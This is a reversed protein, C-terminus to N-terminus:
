EPRCRACGRGAACHGDPYSRRRSGGGFLDAQHNGGVVLPNEAEPVLARAAHANGDPLEGQVGGSRAYIRGVRKWHRQVHARVVLIQQGIREVDPIALPPQAAGLVVIEELGEDAGDQVDARAGHQLPLVELLVVGDLDEIAIAVADRAEVVVDLAGAGDHQRPDQGGYPREAPRQALVPEDEQAGACGAGADSAHNAGGQAGVAHRAAVRLRAITM